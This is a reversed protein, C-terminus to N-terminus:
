SCGRLPWRRSPHISWRSRCRHPATPPCRKEGSPSGISQIAAAIREFVDGGGISQLTRVKNSVIQQYQPLEVALRALQSVILYALFGLIIAAGFVSLPSRRCPACPVPAIGARDAGACLDALIALVLPVFIGAGVYLAGITVIIGAAVVFGQAPTSAPPLVPGNVDTM